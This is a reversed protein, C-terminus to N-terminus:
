YQANQTSEFIETFNLNAEKELREKEQKHKLELEETIKRQIEELNKQKEISELEAAKVKDKLKKEWDSEVSESKIKNFCSLLYINIILIIINKLCYFYM